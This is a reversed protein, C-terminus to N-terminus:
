LIKVCHFLKGFFLNDSYDPFVKKYIITIDTGTIDKEHRGRNERGALYFPHRSYWDANM